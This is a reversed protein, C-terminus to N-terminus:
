HEHKISDVIAVRIEQEFSSGLRKPDQEHLGEWQFAADIGQQIAQRLRSSEAIALSIDDVDRLDGIVGDLWHPPRMLFSRSFLILNLVVEMTIAFEAFFALAARSRAPGILKECHSQLLRSRDGFERGNEAL